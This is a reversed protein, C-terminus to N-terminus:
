NQLLLEYLDTVNKIKRTKNNYGVELQRKGWENEYIFWDIWYNSDKMAIELINIQDNVLEYGLEFIYSDFYKAIDNVFKDVQKFSEQIKQMCEKFEERTLIANKM